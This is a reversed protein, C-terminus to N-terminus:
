RNMKQLLKAAEDFFGKIKAKQNLALEKVNIADSSMKLQSAESKLDAFKEKQLNQLVTSIMDTAKKINDAHNTKEPDQTIEDACKRANDVDIKSDFNNKSAVEETANILKTLAENSYEHSLTMNGDDNKVFAVYTEVATLNETEETRMEPQEVVTDKTTTTTNTVTTTDKLIFFYVLLAIVLLALIWPWIPKKKEIKIEAM